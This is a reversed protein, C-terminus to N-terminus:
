WGRSHDVLPFGDDGIRQQVTQDPAAPPREAFAALWLLSKATRIVWAVVPREQQPAWPRPAPRSPTAWWWIALVALVAFVTSRDFTFTPAPAAVAVPAPAATALRRARPM